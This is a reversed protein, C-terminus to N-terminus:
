RKLLIYNIENDLVFTTAKELVRRIRASIKICPEGVSWTGFNLYRPQPM